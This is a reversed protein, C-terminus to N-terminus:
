PGPPGALEPPLPRDRAVMAAETAGLVGDEVVVGRLLELPVLEAHVNRPRVGSPPAEWVEEPPMEDIRLMATSAPVFKRQVSLVYVPVSHERAALTASFGGVPVIVGRDTVAEAGLWLMAVQSLLLPLAADVVLWTPLGAAGLAAALGRGELGPRGESVLARPGRGAAHAELLAQRVTTSAAVTAVWREREDLLARATRAVATRAAELDTREAACSRALESCAAAPTEDRLMAADMVELARGAFQHVLGSAAHAAQERKLHALLAARLELTAPSSDAAAWGELRALFAFAQETASSHAGPSGRFPSGPAPGRERVTTM